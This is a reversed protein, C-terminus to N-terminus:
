KKVSYITMNRCEITSHTQPHGKMCGVWDNLDDVAIFLVNPHKTADQAPIAHITILMMCAAIVSARRFYPVRM